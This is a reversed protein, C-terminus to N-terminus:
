QDRRNVSDAWSDEIKQFQAVTASQTSTVAVPATASPAPIPAAPDSAPNQAVAACCTLFLASICALNRNM